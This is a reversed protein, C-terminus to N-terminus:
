PGRTATGTMATADTSPLTPRTMAQHRSIAHRGTTAYASGPTGAAISPACVRSVMGGPTTSIQRATNKAAM